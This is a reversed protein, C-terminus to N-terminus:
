RLRRATITRGDHTNLVLAGDETLEFRSVHTLVDAFVRELEMEPPPCAMKTSAVRGITLSHGSLTYSGNYNNCFSRGSVTGEATFSLTGETGDVIEESDIAEVAWVGGQLQESM